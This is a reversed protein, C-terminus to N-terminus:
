VIAVARVWAAGADRIAIPFCAIQFSHSRPLLHLNALREMHLYERTRGYMHAPWLVRSDKTSIHAQVMEMFPLDFGNADIGVVKIGQEVLWRTAEESMGPHESFYEPRPWLKDSDTRILVIDMPQLAYNIRDLAEQLDSVTIAAKRKKHTLNLVVGQGFCWELPVENIRRAPKGECVPGFHYPADLHTGCHVSLSYIENSLFKGDPFSRHNATRYARLYSWFGVMKKWVSAKPPIFLARWIRDGGIEHGTTKLGEFTPDGPHPEIHMSLDIIQPM